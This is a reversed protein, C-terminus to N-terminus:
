AGGAQRKRSHRAALLTASRIGLEIGIDVNFAMEQMAQEPAAHQSLNLEPPPPAEEQEEKDPMERKKEITESDKNLRVFEIRGGSEKGLKGEQGLILSQMLYFLGFTVGVAFFAASLHRVM